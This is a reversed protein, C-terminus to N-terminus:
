TALVPLRGPWGAASILVIIPECFDPTARTGSLPTRCQEQWALVPEQRGDDAAVTTPPDQLSATRLFQEAVVPDREAARQVWAVYANVVRVPLPRPGQVQPLSLDAGVTLQWAAGVPKAAAQFFRRALDRDGEALAEQLAAAQLAAVSMGQGYIPNVSCIADGFVLLGAPFRRLREYHRRLNAQFRYTVIDDLPQAGRVAAFVEPPALQEVFGLFADPDSPPHHGQYGFVTLIWRDQEEAFMALGTPRRPEAGVGILKADGLAGPPLRLHRTAYKLHVPLQEEPPPDRESASPRDVEGGGESVV